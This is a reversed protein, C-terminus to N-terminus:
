EKIEQYNESVHDWNVLYWWAQIYDVRKNFYQLYYAHEWVDLGLIPMFGQSIPNDQNSTKSVVLKGFNDVCLWAWGSGFVQKAANNFQQQFDQFTGFYKNIDELLKGQPLPIQGSKNPQMFKWFMSHNLHGGGNNRITERCDEPLTKFDRILEFLSYQQLEPHHELAANLNDIYTQHHKTYHLEMIKTDIYPNLADFSYELEPLFYKYHM